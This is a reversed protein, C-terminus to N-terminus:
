MITINHSSRHHQKLWSHPQAIAALGALLSYVQRSRRHSRADGELRKPRVKGVRSEAFLTFLLVIPATFLILM